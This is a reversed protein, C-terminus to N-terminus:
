GLWPVDKEKGGGVMEDLQEVMQRWPVKGVGRRIVKGNSAVVIAIGEERAKEGNQEVADKMEANIYDDWGPGTPRAVYAQREYVPRDAFGTGEPRTQREVENAVTEYPVVLVNSMAFDMKLLNAGVLADRCAKKPGAVIIMHQRAGSQLEQVTADRTAGDPSIQVALSLSGLELERDKMGKILKEQEKKMRDEVREKLEAGKEFDYKALLAFIIVAGFDIGLNLLQFM